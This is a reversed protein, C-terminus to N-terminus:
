PFSSCASLCAEASRFGTCCFRKKPLKNEFDDYPQHFHFHYNAPVDDYSYTITREVCSFKQFIICLKGCLSVYANTEVKVSQYMM